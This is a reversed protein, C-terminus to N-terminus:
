LKLKKFEVPAMRYPTKTIPTTRPVLDIKFEIERELPMLKLEDPFINSIETVVLVDELKM